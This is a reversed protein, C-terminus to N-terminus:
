CVRADLLTFPCKHHIYSALNLISPCRCYCLCFYAVQHFVTFRFPQFNNHWQALVSLSETRCDSSDNGAKKVALNFKKAITTVVCPPLYAEPFTHKRHFLINGRFCTVKETTPRNKAHFHVDKEHINFIALM